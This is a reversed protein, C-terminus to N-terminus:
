KIDISEVFLDRYFFVSVEICIVKLMMNESILYDDKLLIFFLVYIRIIKM